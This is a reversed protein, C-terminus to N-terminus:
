VFYICFQSCVWAKKKSTKLCPRLLSLSAELECDEPVLERLATPIVPMRVVSLKLAKKWIVNIWIILSYIGISCCFFDEYVLFPLFLCKNSVLCTHQRVGRHLYLASEMHLLQMDAWLPPVACCAIKFFTEGTEQKHKYRKYCMKEIYNERKKGSFMLFQRCSCMWVLKQLAMFQEALDCQTQKSLYHVRQLLPEASSM